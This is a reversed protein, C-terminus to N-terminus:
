DESDTICGLLQLLLYMGTIQNEILNLLRHTAKRVMMKWDLISHLTGYGKLKVNNTARLMSNRNSEFVKLSKLANSKRRHHLQKPYNTYQNTQVWADKSIETSIVM